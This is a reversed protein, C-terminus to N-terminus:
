VSLATAKIFYGLWDANGGTPSGSFGAYSSMWIPSSGSPHIATDNDEGATPSKVRRQGAAIGISAPSAEDQLLLNM